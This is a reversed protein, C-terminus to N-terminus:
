RSDFWHGEPKYWLASYYISIHRWSTQDPLSCTTVDRFVLSPCFATGGELWFWLVPLLPLGHQLKLLRFQVRAMTVRNGLRKRRSCLSYIRLPWGGGRGSCLTIGPFWSRGKPQMIPYSHTLSCIFPYSQYIPPSTPFPDIAQPCV